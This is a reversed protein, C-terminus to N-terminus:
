ILCLIPNMSCYYFLVNFDWHIAEKEVVVMKKHADLHENVCGKKFLANECTLAKM